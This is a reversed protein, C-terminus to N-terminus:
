WGCRTIKALYFNRDIEWREGNSPKKSLAEIEMFVYRVLYKLGGFHMDNENRRIHQAYDFLEPSISNIYAAAHAVEEIRIMQRAILFRALCREYMDARYRRTARQSTEKKESSMPMVNM